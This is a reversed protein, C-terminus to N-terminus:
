KQNNNKPIKQLAIFMNLIIGNMILSKPDYMVYIFQKSDTNLVNTATYIKFLM